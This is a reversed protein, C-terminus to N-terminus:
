DSEDSRTNPVQKWRITRQKQFDAYINPGRLVSEFADHHILKGLVSVLDSFDSDVYAVFRPYLRHGISVTAPNRDPLVLIIPFDSMLDEMSTLEGLREGNEAVLVVISRDTMPSRFRDSLAQVTQAIEVRHGPIKTQIDKL